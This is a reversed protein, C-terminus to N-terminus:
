VGSKQAMGIDQRQQERAAAARASNAAPSQHRAAAVDVTEREGSAGQNPISVSRSRTLM